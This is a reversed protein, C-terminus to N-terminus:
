HELCAIHKSVIFVNINIELLANRPYAKMQDVTTCCRGHQKAEESTCARERGRRGKAKIKRRRGGEGERERGKGGRGEKERGRGEEGERERM